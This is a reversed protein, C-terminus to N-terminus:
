LADGIRSFKGKHFLLPSKEAKAFSCVRGLYIEHDGAPIRNEINCELVAAVDDLIPIGNLGPVWSVNAFKSDSPTAFNLAVDKSRDCMINIAFSPHRRFAGLSPSKLALSWLVLPPDLSVSAFSNVALGVPAGGDGLTTIVTVGTAFHGLVDRLADPDFDRFPLDTIHANM